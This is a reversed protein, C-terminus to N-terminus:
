QREHLPAKPNFAAARKLNSLNSAMESLDGRMGTLRKSLVGDPWGTADMTGLTDHQRQLDANQSLVAATNVAEQAAALIEMLNEYAAACAEYPSGDVDRADIISLTYTRADEM